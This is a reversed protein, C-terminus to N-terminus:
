EDKEIWGADEAGKVFATEFRHLKYEDVDYELTENEEWQQRYKEVRQAKEAKEIQHDSPGDYVPQMMADLEALSRGGDRKNQYEEPLMHNPVEIMEMTARRLQAVLKGGVTNEFNYDMNEKENNRMHRNYWVTTHNDVGLRRITQELNAPHVKRTWRPLGRKQRTTGTTHTPHAQHDGVM